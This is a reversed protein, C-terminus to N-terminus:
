QLIIKAESASNFEIFLTFQRLYDFFIQSLVIEAMIGM